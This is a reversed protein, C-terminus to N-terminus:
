WMFIHGPSPQLMPGLNPDQFMPRPIPMPSFYRDREYLDNLMNTEHQNNFVPKPESYINNILPLDMKAEKKWYNELFSEMKIEEKNKTKLNM